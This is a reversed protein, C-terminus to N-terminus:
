NLHNRSYESDIVTIGHNQRQQRQNGASEKEQAASEKRHITSFAISSLTPVSATKGLGSELWWRFGTPLVASCVNNECFSCIWELSLIEVEPRSMKSDNAKVTNRMLFRKQLLSRCWGLLERAGGLLAEAEGQCQLSGRQQRSWRPRKRQSSLLVRDCLRKPRRSWNRNM